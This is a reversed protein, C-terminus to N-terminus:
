LPYGADFIAYDLKFCDHPPAEWCENVIREQLPQPLSNWFSTSNM